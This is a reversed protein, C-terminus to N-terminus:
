ANSYKKALPMVFMNLFSINTYLLGNNIQEGNFRVAFAHNILESYEDPIQLDPILSQLERYSHTIKNTRVFALGQLGYFVSKTFNETVAIADNQRSSVVACYARGLSFAVLEILDENNIKQLTIDKFVDQGKLIKANAILGLIYLKKPFPTDLNFSQLDEITFPYFKLEPINHFKALTSRPVKSIKNYLVGIEYDSESNNDGRSMSGYLFICIPKTDLFIKDVVAQIHSPINM